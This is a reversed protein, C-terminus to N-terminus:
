HTQREQLFKMESELLWLFKGWVIALKKIITLVVILVEGADRTYAGEKSNKGKLTSLTATESQQLPRM